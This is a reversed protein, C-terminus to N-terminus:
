WGGWPQASPEPIIAELGCPGALQLTRQWINCDSLKGWRPADLAEAVVGAGKPGGGKGAWETSYGRPDSMEDTGAVTSVLVSSFTTKMVPIGISASSTPDGVGWLPMGHWM